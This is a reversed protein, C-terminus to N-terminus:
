TETDNGSLTLHRTIPTTKILYKEMKEYMERIYNEMYTWDPDGDSDIPFKHVENKITQTGRPKGYTFNPIVSNLVACIFLGNFKNLNSNRLICIRNGAMFPGDQFFAKFGEAGITLCNGEIVKNEVKKVKATIGNNYASRAIYPFDGKQTSNKNIPNATKCEFLDKIKFEKWKNTNVRKTQKVRKILKDIEILEM